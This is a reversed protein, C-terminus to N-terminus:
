SNMLQIDEQYNTGKEKKVEIIVCKDVGIPMAIDGSLIQVTNVLSEWMAKSKTYLKLDDM